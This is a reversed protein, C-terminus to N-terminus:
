PETWYTYSPTQGLGIAYYQNFTSLSDGLNSDNPVPAWVGNTECAVTKAMAGDAGVAQEMTYTFFAAEHKENNARITAIIDVKDTTYRHTCPQCRPRVVCVHVCM